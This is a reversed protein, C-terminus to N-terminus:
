NTGLDTGNAGERPEKRRLLEEDIEAGDEHRAEEEAVDDAALDDARGEARDGDADDRERDREKQSVDDVVEVPTSARTKQRQEAEVHREDGPREKLDRREHRGVPGRVERLGLVRLHEGAARLKEDGGHHGVEDPLEEVNMDKVEPLRHRLRAM